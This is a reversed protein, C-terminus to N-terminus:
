PQAVLKNWAHCCHDLVDDCSRFIRNPLWNSRMIPILRISDRGANMSKTAKGAALRYASRGDISRLRELPARLASNRRGLFTRNPIATCSPAIAAGGHASGPIFGVEAVGGDNSVSEAAGARRARVPTRRPTMAKV